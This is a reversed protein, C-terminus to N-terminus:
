PVTSKAVKQVAAFRHLTRTKPTTLRTQIHIGLHTHPSGPVQECDGGPARYWRRDTSEDILRDMRIGSFDPATVALYSKLESTEVDSQCYVCPCRSRRAGRM